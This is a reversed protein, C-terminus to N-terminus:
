KNVKQLVPVEAQIDVIITGKIVEEGLGLGFRNGPLHKVAKDGAVFICSVLLRCFGNLPYLSIGRDHNKIFSKDKSLSTPEFDACLKFVLLVGM